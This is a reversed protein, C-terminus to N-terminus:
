AEMITLPHITLCCVILFHIVTMSLVDVVPFSGRGLRPAARHVRKTEDRCYEDAQQGTGETEFAEDEDRVPSRKTRICKGVQM